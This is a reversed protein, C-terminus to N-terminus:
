QKEVKSLTNQIWIILITNCRAEKNHVDNLQTYFDHVPDGTKEILKKEKKAGGNVVNTDQEEEDCSEFEDEDDDDNTGNM